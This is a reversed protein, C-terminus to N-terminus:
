WICYHERQKNDSPM